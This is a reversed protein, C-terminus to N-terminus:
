TQLAACHACRTPDFSALYTEQRYPVFGRREYNPLAHPHDLTCTHLWVRRPAAAWAQRIAHNLLLGGLGRGVAEPLLGFYALEMGDEADRELLYFGALEAGVWLGWAVCAPGALWAELELLPTELRDVWHLREGVARYCRQFWPGLERTVRALRVTAQASEAAPRFQEASTLELYTRVVQFTAPLDSAGM